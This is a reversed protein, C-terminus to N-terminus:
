PQLAQQSTGGVTPYNLKSYPKVYGTGFCSYVIAGNPNLVPGDGATLEVGEKDSHWEVAINGTSSGAFTIVPITSASVTGLWSPQETASYLVVAVSDVVLLENPQVTRPSGNAQYLTLAKAASVSTSGSNFYVCDGYVMKM